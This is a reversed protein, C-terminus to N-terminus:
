PKGRAFPVPVVVLVARLMGDAAEREGEILSLHAALAHIVNAAVRNKAFPALVQFLNAEGLTVDMARNCLITAHVVPLVQAMIDFISSLAKATCVFAHLACPVDAVAVILPRTSKM